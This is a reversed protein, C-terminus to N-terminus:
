FQTGGGIRFVQKKDYDESTLVYAFDARILGLPSAWIISAGVSSRLSANDAVDIEGDPFDNDSVDTDFLTGADLFFAGKFGVERPLLPMPFDVEATGALYVTGGLADDTLLDRPGFGSSEFGRVTEGGKFFEDILRVDEGIGFIHGGQVKLFGIVDSDAMLGRYYTASATTRLFTVDGGVGAFEQTFKAYIGDHPDRRNDLSDYVLSYLVSSVNTDGEADCIALSVGDPCETLPQGQDFDPV